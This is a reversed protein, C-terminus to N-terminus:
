QAPTGLRDLLFLDSVPPAPNGTFGLSPPNPIRSCVLDSLAVSGPIIVTEMPFRFGPPTLRHRRAEKTVPSISRIRM